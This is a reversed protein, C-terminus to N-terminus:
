AVESEFIGNAIAIETFLRNRPIRSSNDWYTMWYHGRDCRYYGMYGSPGWHEDAHSPYSRLTHGQAHCEHCSDPPAASDSHYDPLPVDRKGNNCDHCATVLNDPEDGGGLSRPHIHDVELEVNPACRGCYRCTFNDRALIRFRGTKTLSM